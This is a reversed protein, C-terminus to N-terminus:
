ARDTNARFYSLITPKQKSTTVLFAGRKVCFLCHLHIFLTKYKSAAQLTYRPAFLFVPYSLVMIKAGLKLM